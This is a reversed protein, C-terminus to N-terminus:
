AAELLLFEDVRLLRLPPRVFAPVTRMGEEGRVIRPSAYRRTHGATGIRVGGAALVNRVWDAGSGYTLPIV